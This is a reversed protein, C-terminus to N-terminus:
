NDCIKDFNRNTKLVLDKINNWMQKQDNTNSITKNICNNKEQKIKIKYLNRTIKYDIRAAYNNKAISHIYIYINKKIELHRKFWKNKISKEYIKKYVLLKKMINEFAQDFLKVNHNLDQRWEHNLIKKIKRQFVNMRYTFM